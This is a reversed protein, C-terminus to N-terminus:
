YTGGPLFDGGVTNILNEQILFHRIFIRKMRITVELITIVHPYTRLRCIDAYDFCVIIKLVKM